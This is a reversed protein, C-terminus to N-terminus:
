WSWLSIESAVSWVHPPPEMLETSFSHGHQKERYCTCYSFMTEYHTKIDDERLVWHHVILTYYFLIWRYTFLVWCLSYISLYESMQEVNSFGDTDYIVVNNYFAVFASIMSSATNKIIINNNRGFEWLIYFIM